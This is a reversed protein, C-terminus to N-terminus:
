DEDVDEGGFISKVSSTEPKVEETLLGFPDTYAKKAEKVKPAAPKVAPAPESAKAEPAAPVKPVVPVAPRTVTEFSPQRRGKKKPIPALDDEDEPTLEVPAVRVPVAVPTIQPAPATQSDPAAAAVPSATQVSRPDPSSQMPAPQERAPQEQVPQEPAVQEPAAQESVSQEQMEQALTSDKAPEHEPIECEDETQEAPAYEAEDEIDEAYMGGCLITVGAQLASAVSVLLMVFPLLLGLPLHDPFAWEYVYLLLLGGGIPTQLLCALLVLPRRLSMDVCALVTLGLSLLLLLITGLHVPLTEFLVADAFIDVVALILMLGSCGLVSLPLIKKMM